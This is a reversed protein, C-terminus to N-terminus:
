RRRLLALGALSLLALSAPEPIITYGVTNTSADLWGILITGDGRVDVDAFRMNGPGSCVVKESYVGGGNLNVFALKVDYTAGGDASEDWVVIATNASVLDIRPDNRVVSTNGFIAMPALPNAYDWLWIDSNLGAAGRVNSVVYNGSDDIGLGYIKNNVGDAGGLLTATAASIDYVYADAGTSAKRYVLRDNYTSLRIREGGTGSAYDLVQIATPNSAPAYMIRDSTTNNPDNADPWGLWVVDGASNVDTFGHDGQNDYAGTAISILTNTNRDLVQIPLTTALTQPPGGFVAYNDSIGAQSGWPAWGYAQSIYGEGTLTATGINYLGGVTKGAAGQAFVIANGDVQPRMPVDVGTIKPVWTAPLDAMAPAVIAFLALVVILKRM